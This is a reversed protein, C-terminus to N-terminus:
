WNDKCVRRKCSGNWRTEECRCRQAVIIAAGASWARAPTANNPQTAADSTGVFGVTFALVTAALLVRM